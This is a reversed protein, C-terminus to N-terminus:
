SGKNDTTPVDPLPGDGALSKRARSRARSAKIKQGHRENAKLRAKTARSLKVAFLKQQLFFLQRIGGIARRAYAEQQKLRAVM